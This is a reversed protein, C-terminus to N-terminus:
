GSLLLAITSIAPFFIANYRLEFLAALVILQVIILVWSPRYMIWILLTFWLVTFCNFFADSSVYNSYFLYFPNVILLVYLVIKFVKKLRFFYTWTFFLFL